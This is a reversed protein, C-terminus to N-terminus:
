ELVTELAMTELTNKFQKLVIYTFQELVTKLVYDLISTRLIQGIKVNMFHVQATRSLKLLLEHGTRSDQEQVICSSKRFQQKFKRLPIYGIYFFFISGLLCRDYKGKVM